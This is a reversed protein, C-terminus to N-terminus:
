SKCFSYHPGWARPAQSMFHLKADFSVRAKSRNHVMCWMLKVGHRHTLTYCCPDVPTLKKGM